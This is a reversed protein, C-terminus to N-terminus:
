RETVPRKDPRVLKAVAAHCEEPDEPYVAVPKSENDVWIVLTYRERYNRHLSWLGVLTVALGLLHETAAFYFGFLVTVLGIIALSWEFVQLNVKRIKEGRILLQDEGERDVYVNGDKVQIWGGRRLPMKGTRPQSM